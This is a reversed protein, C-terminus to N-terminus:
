SVKKIEAMLPITYKKKTKVELCLARSRRSELKQFVRSKFIFTDGDSISELFLPNETNTDFVRLAKMLAPDRTSSAAPNQMHRSLVSLMSVPFVEENLLPAFIAQFAEKWENGHPQPRKRLTKMGLQVHMHAVEHIYTVLFSYTNLDYNVTITHHGAEYKYNGLCSSRTGTVKFSFPHEKWLELCYAVAAEPVHKQLLQELRAENALRKSSASGPNSLFSFM